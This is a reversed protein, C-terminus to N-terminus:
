RPITAMEPLPHFAWPNAAYGDVNGRVLSWRLPAALPIYVNAASLMAEARALADTQAQTDTAALSQRLEADAESSCLGRRLTCNFQNLFWRPAPYRAIRDVLALDAAKGPEVRELTVGIQGLQGALANFLIALGPEGGMAITLKPAEGNGLTTRWVAVRDAAEARLREFAIGNWREPAEGGTIPSPILRNTPVWGGINFLALLAARDIGMALAERNENRALFGRDRMIQVGFLGIANDLRLTGRSLPGPDALPWHDVTGGLVVDVEGQDFAELAAKGDMARLRVPRVHDRWGEEQPLGRMEPPRFTLDAEDGNRESVMPGSQFGGHVLALEPQALLRLFDPMPTGLRIEVVRGAMARVEDVPALDLGLSTGRLQRIARRLSDRASEGTLEAGDPWTGGRLRFIYSRGDDTVIWRDALVPTIEGKADLAVLGSATAARVTQAGESLRLGSAFISDESGIVAVDLPGDAGGDCGALALLASGLVIRFSPRGIM